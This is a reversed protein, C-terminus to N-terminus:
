AVQRTVIYSVIIDNSTCNGSLSIGIGGSLAGTSKLTVGDVSAQYVSAIVQDTTLVGPVSWTITAGGGSWTARGSRVIVSDLFVESAQNAANGVLTYSETLGINVPSLQNSSNLYMWVTGDASLLRFFGRNDNANLDGTVPASNPWLYFAYAGSQLSYVVQGARITTTDMAQMAADNAFELVLNPIVTLLNGTAM